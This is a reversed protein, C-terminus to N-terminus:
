FYYCYNKHPASKGGLTASDEPVEKLNCTYMRGKRGENKSPLTFLLTVSLLPSHTFLAPLPLM